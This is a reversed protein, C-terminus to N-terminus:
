KGVFIITSLQKVDNYFKDFAQPDPNELVNFEPDAYKRYIEAQFEMAKKNLSLEKYKEQFYPSAEKPIEGRKVADNFGLRNKNFEEIAKAEDEKGKSLVAVEWAGVMAAIEVRDTMKLEDKCVKRIAERTDDLGAFRRITRIPKM